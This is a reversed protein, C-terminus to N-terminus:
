DSICQLRFDAAVGGLTTQLLFGISSELLQFKCRGFSVIIYFEKFGLPPFFKVPQGYRHRVDAQIGASPQFNLGSLVM